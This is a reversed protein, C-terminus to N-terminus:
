ILGGLRGVGMRAFKGALDPRRAEWGRNSAALFFSSTPIGTSFVRLGGLRNAEMRAFKGALDPRRVERRFIRHLPYELRFFGVFFAQPRICGIARPAVLGQSPGGGEGSYNALPISTFFKFFFYFLVFFFRLGARPWRM